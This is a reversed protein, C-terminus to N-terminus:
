HREGIQIGVWWTGCAYNTPSVKSCSDLMCKLHRQHGNDTEGFLTFRTPEPYSLVLFWLCLVIRRYWRFRCQLFSECIWVSAYTWVVLVRAHALFRVVRALFLRRLSCFSSSRSALISVPCYASLDGSKGSSNVKAWECTCPATSHPNLTAWTPTFNPCPRLWSRM